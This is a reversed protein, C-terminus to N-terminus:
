AGNRKRADLIQEKTLNFPAKMLGAEHKTPVFSSSDGETRAPAGTGSSHAPPKHARGVEELIQTNKASNVALRAFRLDEQPNGSPVVRKLYLKTLEREQSDEISEAMEFATRQARENEMRRLDGMTVPKSDDDNESETSAPTVGLIAAPDLGLERARDANKRLTFEAKQAETRQGRSNERDIEQGIPDQSPAKASALAAEANALATNLAEDTGDAAEAAAKAAATAAELEAIKKSDM